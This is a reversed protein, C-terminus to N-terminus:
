ERNLARSLINVISLRLGWWKTKQLGGVQTALRLEQESAATEEDAEEEDEDAEEEDSKAKDEETKVKDEEDTKEARVIQVVVNHRARMM